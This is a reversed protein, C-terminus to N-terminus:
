YSPDVKPFWQDPTEAASQQGPAVKPFWQDPAAAASQQGPAVKPFWQDPAAASAPGAFVAVVAGGLAVAAALRSIKM